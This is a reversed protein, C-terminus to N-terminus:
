YNMKKFVKNLQLLVYKIEESKFGREQEKRCLVHFLTEDCLEMIIIFEKETDYYDYIKVSNECQCKQMNEIEINFKEIKPIFDEDKIELVMNEEMMMEKIKEKNIISKEPEQSIKLSPGEVSSEVQIIIIKDDEKDKDKETENEQNVENITKSPIDNENNQNEKNEEIINESEIKDSQIEIINNEQKEEKENQENEKDEIRVSLIKETQENEKEDSEKENNQNEEIKKENIQNSIIENENNNINSEEQGNNKEKEKKDNNNKNNFENRIKKLEYEVNENSVNDKSKFVKSVIFDDDEKKQSSILQERAPTSEEEQEM